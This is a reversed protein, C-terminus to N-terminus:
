PLYVKQHVVATALHVRSPMSVAHLFSMFCVNYRCCYFIKWKSFNGAVNWPPCIRLHSRQRRLLITYIFICSLRCGLPLFKGVYSIPTNSGSFALALAVPSSPGLPSSTLHRSGFSLHLHCTPPPRLPFPCLHGTATRMLKQQEAPCHMTHGSM